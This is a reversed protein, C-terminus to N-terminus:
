SGKKWNLNDMTGDWLNSKESNTEKDLYQFNWPVHLGCVDPHRQPIIHDVELDGKADYFVNIAAGHAQSLKSRALSKRVRKARKKIIQNSPGHSPKCSVKSALTTEFEIGCTVCGKKVLPKKGYPKPCTECWRQANSTPIYSKSCTECIRPDHLKKPKPNAKRRQKRKATVCTDCTNGHWFNGTEKDRYQWVGQATKSVKIRTKIIKCSKCEKIETEM